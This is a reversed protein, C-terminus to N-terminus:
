AKRRILRAIFFGDIGNRNAWMEPTLRVSGDKQVAERLGPLEEPKVPDLKLGPQAALVRKLWLEGEEPQLSCTCIVM